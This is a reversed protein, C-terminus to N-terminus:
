MLDDADAGDGSPGNASKYYDLLAQDVDLKDLVIMPESNLAKIDPLDQQYGQNQYHSPDQYENMIPQQEQYSQSAMGQNVLVQQQQLIQQQQEIAFNSNSNSNNDLSHSYVNNQVNIQNVSHNNFHGPSVDSTTVTGTATSGIVAPQQFMQQEVQQGVVQTTQQQGEWPNWYSQQQLQSRTQRISAAPPLNIDVKSFCDMSNLLSLLYSNQVQVQSCKPEMTNSDGGNTTSKSGKPQGDTTRLNSSDNSNIIGLSTSPELFSLDLSDLLQKASAMAPGLIQSVHTQSEISPSVVNSVHLLINQDYILQPRKLDSDPAESPLPLEVLVDVLSQISSLNVGSALQNNADSM